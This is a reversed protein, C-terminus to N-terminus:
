LCVANKRPKERIKNRWLIHDYRSLHRLTHQILAESTWEGTETTCLKTISIRDRKTVKGTETKLSIKTGGVTLDHQPQNPNTVVVQNRRWGSRLFAQEVLAEFFMGQPPRNPYVTHHLGVLQQLNRLFDDTFLRQRRAMESTGKLKANIRRPASQIPDYRPLLAVTERWGSSRRNKKRM